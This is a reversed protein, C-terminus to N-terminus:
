VVDLIIRKGTEADNMEHMHNGEFTIDKDCIPCIMKTGEGTIHVSSSPVVLKVENM